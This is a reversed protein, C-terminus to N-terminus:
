KDLIVEKDINQVEENIVNEVIDVGKHSNNFLSCSSLFVLLFVLLINKSM